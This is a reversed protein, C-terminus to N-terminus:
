RSPHSTMCSIKHRHGEYFRQSLKESDAIIAVRSTFYCYFRKSNNRIKYYRLLEEHGEAGEEGGAISMEAGLDEEEFDEIYMLTSRRDFAEFGYVHSLTISM